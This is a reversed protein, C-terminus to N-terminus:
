IKEDEQGASSTSANSRHRVIKSHNRVFREQTHRRHNHYREFHRARNEDGDKFYHVISLIVVIVLFFVCFCIILVLETIGLKYPICYLINM